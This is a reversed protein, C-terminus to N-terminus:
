ADLFDMRTLDAYKPDELAYDILNDLEHGDQLYFEGKWLDAFEDIAQVARDTPTRHSDAIQTTIQTRKIPTWFEPNSSYVGSQVFDNDTFDALFKIASQDGQTALEQANALEVDSLGPNADSNYEIAYGQGRKFASINNLSMQISNKLSENDDEFKQKWQGVEKYNAKVLSSAGPTSTLDPAKQLQEETFGLGTSAVDLEMLRDELDNRRSIEANLLSMEIALKRDADFKREQAVIRATDKSADVAWSRKYQVAM